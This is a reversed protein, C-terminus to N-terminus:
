GSTAPGVPPLTSREFLYATRRRAHMPHRKVQTGAFDDAQRAQDAGPSGLQRADKKADGRGVGALHDERALGYGNTRWPLGNRQSNGIQGFVAAAV